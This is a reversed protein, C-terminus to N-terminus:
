RPYFNNQFGSPLYGNLRTILRQVFVPKTESDGFTSYYKIADFELLFNDRLASFDEAMKKIKDIDNPFVMETTGTSHVILSKPNIKTSAEQMLTAMANYDAVSPSASFFKALKYRLAEVAMADRSPTVMIELYEPHTHVFIPDKSLKSIDYTIFNTRAGGPKLELKGGLSYWTEENSDFVWMGESLPNWGGGTMAIKELDKMGESFSKKNIYPLAAYELSGQSEQFYREISFPDIINKGKKLSKSPNLKKNFQELLNDQKKRTKAYSFFMSLMENPTIGYCPCGFTILDEFERYNSAQYYPREGGLIQFVEVVLEPNVKALHLSRFADNFSPFVYGCLSGDAEPLKMITQSAQKVSLGLRTAFSFIFLSTDMVGNDASTKIMEKFTDLNSPLDAQNEANHNIARTLLMINNYEQIFEYKISKMMHMLLDQSQEYTLGAKESASMYKPLNELSKRLGYWHVVEEISGEENLMHMPRQNFRKEEKLFNVLDKEKFSNFNNIILDTLESDPLPSFGNRLFITRIYQSKQHKDGILVSGQYSQNETTM